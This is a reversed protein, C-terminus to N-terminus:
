LKNHRDQGTLDLLIEDFLNIEKGTSPNLNKQLYKDLAKELKKFDCCRRTLNRSKQPTETVIRYLKNAKNSISEENQQCWSLEDKLLEAYARDKSNGKMLKPINIKQILSNDVPIMENFNLVGILKGTPRHIIRSFDKDNKMKYHKPKPSSLPICYQNSNCMLVLGVFPRSGKNIQPSVSMVNDDVKSLERIYKM